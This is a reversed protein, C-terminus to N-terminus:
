LEDTRMCAVANVTMANRKNWIKAEDIPVADAWGDTGVAELAPPV